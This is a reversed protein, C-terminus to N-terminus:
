KVGRFLDAVQVKLLRAAEVITSETIRTRGNEYNFIQQASCNLGVAIEEVTLGKEKRIRRLNLGVTTKQPM